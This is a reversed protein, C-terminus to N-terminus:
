FHFIFSGYFRVEEVDQSFGFRKLKAEGVNVAFRFQYAIDFVYPGISIGSGLSFGYYDDPNGDSPMPDYFIGARFPIITELRKNILLYESGFRVQYTPKVHSLSNKKGTIFSYQDGNPDTLIFNSWDTLYLDGSLTWNDSFRYAVGMGCSLPMDLKESYKRSTQSYIPDFSTFITTHELDATFPTKLVFGCTFQDTVDWSIGINMNFGSFKYEHTIASDMLFPASFSLIVPGKERTTQEWGNTGLFDNWFNLTCGVSLNSYLQFCLALGLASLKGDQMVMYQSDNKEIKSYSLRQERKFAFLHQYNLSIVMNRGMFEFPSTLSFFNLNQESMSNSFEDPANMHITNNEKWHSFDAVISLEPTKLQILRGPNWSAATADDAIGIFAGGMGLARAGSGIPNFTLSELKDYPHDAYLMNTSLWLMILMYPFSRMNQGEHYILTIIYVRHNVYWLDMSYIVIINM